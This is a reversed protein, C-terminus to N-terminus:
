KLLNLMAIIINRINWSILCVQASCELRAELLLQYQKFELLNALFQWQSGINIDLKKVSLM